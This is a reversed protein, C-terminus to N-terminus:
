GGQLIASRQRTGRGSAGAKGPSERCRAWPRAAETLCRVTAVRCPPWAPCRRLRWSVPYTRRQSAAPRSPSFLSTAELCVRSASVQDQNSAPAAPAEGCAAWGCYLWLSLPMQPAVWSTCRRSTTPLSTVTDGGAAEPPGMAPRNTAPGPPVAVHVPNYGLSIRAAAAPSRSTM